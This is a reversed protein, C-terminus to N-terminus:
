LQMEPKVGWGECASIFVYHMLYLIGSSYCKFSISSQFIIFVPIHRLFNSIFNKYSVHIDIATPNGFHIFLLVLKFEKDNTYSIQTRNSIKIVNIFNNLVLHNLYSRSSKNTFLDCNTGTM